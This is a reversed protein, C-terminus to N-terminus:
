RHLKDHLIYYDPFLFMTHCIDLLRKVTVQFSMCNYRNGSEERVGERWQLGVCRCITSAVLYVLILISTVNTERGKNGDNQQARATTKRGLSHPEALPRTSPWPASEWCLSSCPVLAKQVITPSTGAALTASYGPTSAGNCMYRPLM